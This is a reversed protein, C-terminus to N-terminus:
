RRVVPEDAHRLIRGRGGCDPCTHAGVTGEGECEECRVVLDWRPDRYEREFRRPRRDTWGRTTARLDPEGFLWRDLADLLRTIRRPVESSGPSSEAVSQEKMVHPVHTPSPCRTTRHQRVPHRSHPTPVGDLFADVERRRRKERRPPPRGSRM